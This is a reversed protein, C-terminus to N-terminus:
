LLVMLMEIITINSNRHHWNLVALNAQPNHKHNVLNKRQNWNLIFPQNHVHNLKM